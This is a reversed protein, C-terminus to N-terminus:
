ATKMMADLYVKRAHSAKTAIASREARTLKEARAKGGLKGLAVAGPHKKKRAAMLDDPSLHQRTNVDHQRDAAM